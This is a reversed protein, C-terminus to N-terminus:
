DHTSGCVRRPCCVDACRHVNTLSATLTVFFEAATAGEIRVVQRRVRGTGIKEGVLDAFDGTAPAVIIGDRLRWFAITRESSSGMAIPIAEIKKDDVVVEELSTAKDDPHSQCHCMSWGTGCPARLGASEPWDSVVSRGGRASSSITTKSGIGGIVTPRLSLTHETM